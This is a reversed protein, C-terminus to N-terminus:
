DEVMYWEMGRGKEKVKKRVGGEGDSEEEGEEEDEEDEDSDGKKKRVPKQPVPALVKAPPGIKQHLPEIRHRKSM